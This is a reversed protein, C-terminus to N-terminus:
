GEVHVSEAPTNCSLRERLFRIFEETDGVRQRFRRRHCSLRNWRAVQAQYDVLELWRREDSASLEGVEAPEGREDGCGELSLREVRVVSGTEDRGLDFPFLRCDRPRWAYATCRQNADLLECAGQRHALVMVRRGVNLEVFSGPEDTMDVADPGLWEVLLSADRGLGAALRDLDHHTIAVRLSRCCNGCGNCRFDLHEAGPLLPLSRGSAVASM